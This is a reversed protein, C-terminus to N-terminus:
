RFWEEDDYELQWQAETMPPYTFEIYHCELGNKLGKTYAEYTITDIGNEIDSHNIRWKLVEASMQYELKLIGLECFFESLYAEGERTFIANLNSLAVSVTEPESWFVINFQPLFYLLRGADVFAADDGYADNAMILLDDISAIQDESCVEKMAKRQKYYNDAMLAAGAALSAKQSNSVRNSAIICGVTVGSVIIPLIYHRKDGDMFEQKAAYVFLADSAIVGLVSTATLIEPLNNKFLLKLNPLKM